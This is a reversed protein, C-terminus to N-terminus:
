VTFTSVQRTLDDALRTLTEVESSVGQAAKTSGAAADAVGTINTAIQSSGSAAEAVNRSMESTTVTQEEVAAAITASYDNIQEVISSIEGIAAVAGGTDNQIAEIRRAIDETAKATEQALEKVEGAVVAFGKGAEGARAAEITANLALLNTQEAISTITKVVAGIEQSSVGLRSVQENTTEAVQQAEAAVKAANSANGAIETISSGMQEAGAAVTEVNRSVQEAAAAVVGAQASTEESGAAVQAGASGLTRTSGSLKHAAEVVSTLTTRLSTQARMLDDAMRGIEDRQRVQPARTLDGRGLAELSANMENIAGSMSRVVLLSVYGVLLLAGGLVLWLIWTSTTALASSRTNYTAATESFAQGQATMLDNIANAEDAMDGTTLAAGAQVEGAEVEAIETTVNAIYLDTLAVLQDADAKSTAHEVFADRAATVDDIRSKLTSVADPLSQEPTSPLGSARARLGGFAASLEFLKEQPVNTEDYMATQAHSLSRMQMTALGTLGAAVLAVAGVLAGLKAIMPLDLFGRSGTASSMDHGKM